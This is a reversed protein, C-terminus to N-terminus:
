KISKGSLHLSLNFKNLAAENLSKKTIMQNKCLGM